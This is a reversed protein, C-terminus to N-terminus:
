WTTALNELDRWNWGCITLGMAEYGKIGNAGTNRVQDGFIARVEANSKGSLNGTALLDHIMTPRLNRDNKWDAPAFKRPTLLWVGYIILAVLTPGLIAAIM